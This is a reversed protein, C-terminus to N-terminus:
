FRFAKELMALMANAEGITSVEVGIPLAMNVTVAAM